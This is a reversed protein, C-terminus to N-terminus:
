CRSVNVKVMKFFGFHFHVTFNKRSLENMWSNMLDTFGQELRVEETRMAENLPLSARSFDKQNWKYNCCGYFCRPTMLWWCKTLAKISNLWKRWHCLNYLDIPEMYTNLSFTSSSQLKGKKKKRRLSLCEYFSQKQKRRWELTHHKSKLHLSIFCVQLM